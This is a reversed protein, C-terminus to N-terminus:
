PKRYDTGEPRRKKKLLHKKIQYTVAVAIGGLGAAMIAIGLVKLLATLFVLGIRAAAVIIIVLLVIGLNKM